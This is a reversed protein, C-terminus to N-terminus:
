SQGWPATQIETALGGPFPAPTVHASDRINKHSYGPLFPPTFNPLRPGCGPLPPRGLFRQQSSQPHFDRFLSITMSKSLPGIHLDHIGLGDSKRDAICVTFRQAPHLRGHLPFPQLFASTRGEYRRLQDFYATHVARQCCHSPFGGCRETHNHFQMFLAMVSGTHTLGVM